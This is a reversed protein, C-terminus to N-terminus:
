QKRNKLKNSVKGTRVYEGYEGYRDKDRNTKSFLLWIIIFIMFLVAFVLLTVVLRSVLLSWEPPFVLPLIYPPADPFKTTELWTIARPSFFWAATSIILILILGFFPLFSPQKEAEHRNSYM